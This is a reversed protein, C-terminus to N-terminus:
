ETVKYGLEVMESSCKRLIHDCDESSLEIKWKRLSASNVPNKLNQHHAQSSVGMKTLSGKNRWIDEELDLGLFAIVQALINKPNSVLSEYKIILVSSGKKRLLNFQRHSDKWKWIAYKMNSAPHNIMKRYSSVVARPDRTLYIFKAHPFENGINRIFHTQLPTKDGWIGIYDEGKKQKAFAVYIQEILSNFTLDTTEKVYKLTSNPEFDWQSNKSLAKILNKAKEKRSKWFKIRWIFLHYPVKHQEPPIFIGSHNNLLGALLTSGNRGSGIIFFPQKNLKKRQQTLFFFAIPILIRYKFLDWASLM